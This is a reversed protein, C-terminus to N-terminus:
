IDRFFEYNINKLEMVRPYPYHTIEDKGGVYFGTDISRYLIEGSFIRNVTKMHKESEGKLIELCDRL